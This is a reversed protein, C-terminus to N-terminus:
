FDFSKLCNITHVVGECLLLDWVLHFIKSEELSYRKQIGHTFYLTGKKLIQRSFRFKLKWGEMYCVVFKM